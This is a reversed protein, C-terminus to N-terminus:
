KEALEKGIDWSDNSQLENVVINFLLKFGRM